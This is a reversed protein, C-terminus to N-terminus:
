YDICEKFYTHYCTSLLYTVVTVVTVIYSLVANSTYNEYVNVPSHMNLCDMNMM